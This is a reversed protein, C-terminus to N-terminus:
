GPSDNGGSGGGSGAALATVGLAGVIGGVLMGTDPMGGQEGTAALCADSHWALWDNWDYLRDNAVDRYTPGSYRWTDASNGGEIWADYEPAIRDCRWSDPPPLANSASSPVANVQALASAGLGCALALGALPLAKIVFGKTM